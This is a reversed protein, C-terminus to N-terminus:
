FGVMRVSVQANHKANTFPTDASSPKPIYDPSPNEPTAQYYLIVNESGQAKLGRQYQWSLEPMEAENGFAMITDLNLLVM